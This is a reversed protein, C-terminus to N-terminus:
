LPFFVSSWGSKKGNSLSLLFKTVQKRCLLAWIHKFHPRRKCMRFIRKKDPHTCLTSNHLYDTQTDTYTNCEDNKSIALATRPRIGCLLSRHFRALTPSRTPRTDDCATELHNSDGPQQPNLPTNPHPPSKPAKEMMSPLHGAALVHGGQRM